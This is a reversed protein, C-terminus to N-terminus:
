GRRTDGRARSDDGAAERHAGKLVREVLRETYRLKRRSIMFDNCINIAEVLRERGRPTQYLIVGKSAELTLFCDAEAEDVVPYVDAELGTVAEVAEMIRLVAEDVDVDPRLFVVLDVDRPRTSRLISGYSRSPEM